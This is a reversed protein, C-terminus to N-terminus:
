SIGSVSKLLGQSLDFPLTSAGVLGNISEVM